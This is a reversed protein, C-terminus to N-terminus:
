GIVTAILLQAKPDASKIASIAAGVANITAITNACNKGPQYSGAASIAADFLTNVKAVDALPAYVALWSDTLTKATKLLAVDSAVSCGAAIGIVALALVICLVKTKM